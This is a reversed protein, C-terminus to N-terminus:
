PQKVRNQSVVQVTGQQPTGCEYEAVGKMGTPEMHLIDFIWSLSCSKAAMTEAAASAKPEKELIKWSDEQASNDETNEM